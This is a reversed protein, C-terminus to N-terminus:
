QRFVVEWHYFLQQSAFIQRKPVVLGTKGSMALKSIDRGFGKSYKGAVVMYTLFVKLAHLSAGYALRGGPLCIFTGHTGFCAQIQYITFQIVSASVDSVCSKYLCYVLLYNICRIRPENLSHVPHLLNLAISSVAM